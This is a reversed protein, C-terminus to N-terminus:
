GCSPVTEPQKRKRLAAAVMAQACGVGSEVSIAGFPCNQQCASCEMCADPNVVKAARANMAFVAHPCVNVCMGCGTCRSVDYQLTNWESVSIM